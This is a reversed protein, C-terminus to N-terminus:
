EGSHEDIIGGLSQYDEWFHPYSKNVCQAGILTIPAGCRTAAIALMMAIRHDGCCDVTVGGSLSSKGHIILSDPTEIIDAGLASLTNTIASLRDSEKMRLRAINTLHLSADGIAGCVALPPVLDPCDSADITCSSSNCQEIHHAIIRDGQVSSNNMGSITVPHGLYQAAYWFAAQSWDAEAYVTHPHYSRNGAIQYSLPSKQATVSIGFQKLADLTMHLYGISEMHTTSRLLSKGDLLPLAYLLGTFFQSSINGPLAYEGPTLTGHVTLRNREQQFLIGKEQFINLYPTLPREMLRGHGIFIGGGATALAIPILFRLTSGSEGCDFQLLNGHTKQTSSIGTIKLTDGSLNWVAGLMETCRLTALIDESLIVRHITSEGQALAAALILRHLQSKSPPPTINGSLTSPILTLKM